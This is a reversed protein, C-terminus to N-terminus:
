VITDQSHTNQLVLSHVYFVVYLIKAYNSIFEFPSLEIKEGVKICKRKYSDALHHKVLM